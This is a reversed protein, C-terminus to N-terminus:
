YAIFQSCTNCEDGYTLNSTCSPCPKLDYISVTSSTMIQYVPIRVRLMESHQKCYSCEAEQKRQCVKGALTKATCRRRVIPKEKEELDAEKKLHEEM